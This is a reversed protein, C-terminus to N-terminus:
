KNLKYAVTINNSNATLFRNTYILYNTYGLYRYDISIKKYAIGIGAIYALQYHEFGDGPYYDNETITHTGNFFDDTTV